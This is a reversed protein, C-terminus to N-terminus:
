TTICIISTSKTKIDPRLPNIVWVTQQTRVQRVGDVTLPFLELVFM